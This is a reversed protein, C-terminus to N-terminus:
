HGTWKPQRKEAFARPGERADDSARMKAALPHTRANADALTPADLSGMITAKTAQVSLPACSVIEAALEGTARELDAAAVVENVFGLTKAERASVKRGTLAMGMALKLPIQRALRQLGDLAAQGIRPEPFGFVAHDAAIVLDCAMVIELGGGLAVGNVGAIVPKVLDFRRTLGAFGTEPTDDRGTEAMYKLDTGACFAQDGAGTIIAVWADPDEQFDDFARALEVHAAPHLSNMVEPRDITIVRVRGDKRVTCFERDM